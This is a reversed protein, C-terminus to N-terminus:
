GHRLYVQVHRVRLSQEHKLSGLLLESCALAAGPEGAADCLQRHGAWVADPKALVMLCGWRVPLM